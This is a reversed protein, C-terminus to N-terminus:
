DSIKIMFNLTEHVQLKLDEILKNIDIIKNNLIVVSKHVENELKKIYKCQKSIIKEAPKVSM